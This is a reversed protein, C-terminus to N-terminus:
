EKPTSINHKYEKVAYECAKGVMENFEKIAKQMDELSKNFASNNLLYNAIGKETATLSHQLQLILDASKEAERRRIINM